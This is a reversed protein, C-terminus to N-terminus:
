ESVQAFGETFPTVHVVFGEQPKKAEKTVTDKRKHSLTTFVMLIYSNKINLFSHMIKLNIVLLSILDTILFSGVFLLGPGSPKVPSM